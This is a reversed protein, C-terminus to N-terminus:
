MKESLDLKGQNIMNINSTNNKKVINKTTM